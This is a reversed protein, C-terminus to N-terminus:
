ILPSQPFLQKYTEKWFDNALSGGREDRIEQSKYFRCQFFTPFLTTGHPDPASNTILSTISNLQAILRLWVLMPAASSFTLAAVPTPSGDSCPIGPNPPPHGTQHHALCGHYIVCARYQRRSTTVGTQLPLLLCCRICVGFPFMVPASGNSARSAFSKASFM